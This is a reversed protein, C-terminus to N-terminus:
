PANSGAEEDKFAYYHKLVARVYREAGVFPITGDKKAVAGPGANYASLVRVMDGKYKNALRRLFKTGGMINQRPDWPDSVGLAKATRPMLQMLGMAGVPSKARYNFNSEVRIVGKIFSKPIRYKAAADEIYTAYLKMRESVTIKDPSIIAPKGPAPRYVKKPPTVKSTKSPQPAEGGCLTDTKYRVMCSISAGSTTTASIWTNTPAKKLRARSKKSLRQWKPGCNTFMDTVPDVADRKQCSIMYRAGAPLAWVSILILAIILRQPM